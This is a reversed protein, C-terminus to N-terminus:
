KYECLKTYTISRQILALIYYESFENELNEGRKYQEYDYIINTNYNISERLRALKNLCYSASFWCYYRMIDLEFQINDDPFCYEYYSIM